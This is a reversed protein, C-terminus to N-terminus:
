GVLRGERLVLTRDCRAAIAMNHTVMVTSVGHSAHLRNLLDFIADGTGADLNGTPEDALLLRPETVLARALSVRQQEGGSLEGARHTGRDALGVEALWRRAKARSEAQPEGRALLPMAVNEEATFEPLLYHAQWVYGITRNRFEAQQQPKLGALSTGDIVVDGSTPSDMAALLHLLTSKGAGSAGVIALMEGHAVTFSLERFLVLEGRGTTYSKTLSDVRVLPTAHPPTPDPM